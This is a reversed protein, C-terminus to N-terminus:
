KWQPPGQTHCRPCTVEPASRPAVFHGHCHGCWALGLETSCGGCRFRAPSGRLRNTVRCAPCVVPTFDFDLESPAGNPTSGNAPLRCGADYYARAREDSLVRWAEMIRDLEAAVRDAEPGPPRIWDPHLAKLRRKWARKIEVVTASPAVGLVDYHTM